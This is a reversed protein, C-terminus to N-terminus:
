VIRMQNVYVYNKSSWLTISVQEIPCVVAGAQLSEVFECPMSDHFHGIFRKTSNSFICGRLKYIAVAVQRQLTFTCLVFYLHRFASSAHQYNHSEQQHQMYLRSPYVASVYCILCTIESNCSTCSPNLLLILTLPIKLAPPWGNM